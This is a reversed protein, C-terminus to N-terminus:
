GNSDSRASRLLEAPTMGSRLGDRIDSFAGASSAAAQALQELNFPQELRQLPPSWGGYFLRRGAEAVAPFLAAFHGQDFFFVPGGTLVRHVLSFSLLNWFFAYEARLLWALYRKHSLESFASLHEQDGFTAEIDAILDAPGVIVAHRGLAMCEALRQLLAALYGAGHKQRLLTFDVRSLVFLWVPRDGPLADAPTEDTVASDSCYSLRRPGALAPLRDTPAPYVHWAKRLARRMAWVRCSLGVLYVSVAVALRGSPQRLDGVPQLSPWPQVGLFPDTTLLAVQLRHLHHFLRL